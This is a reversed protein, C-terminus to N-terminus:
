PGSTSTIIVINSQIKATQTPKITTNKTRPEAMVSYVISCVFCLAIVIIAANIVRRKRPSYPNKAQGQISQQAPQVPNVPQRLDRGCYRCVIADDQIEEACYPCKKM